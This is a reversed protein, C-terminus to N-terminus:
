SGSTDAKGDERAVSQVRKQNNQEHKIANRTLRRNHEYEDGFHKTVSYFNGYLQMTNTQPKKSDM